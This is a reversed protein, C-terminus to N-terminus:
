ASEEQRSLQQETETRLYAPTAFITGWFTNQAKGGVTPLNLVPGLLSLFLKFWNCFHLQRKRKRPTKSKGLEPLVLSAPLDHMRRRSVMMDPLVPPKQSSHQVHVAADRRLVDGRARFGNFPWRPNAVQAQIEPKLGTFDSLQLPATLRRIDFPRKEAM